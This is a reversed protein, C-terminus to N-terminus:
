MTLRDGMDFLASTFQDGAVAVSLLPETSMEHGWYPLRVIKASPMVVKPQVAVSGEFLTADHLKVTVTSSTVAGSSNQGLLMISASPWSLLEPGSTHVYLVYSLTPTTDVDHEGGDPYVNGHPLVVTVHEAASEDPL